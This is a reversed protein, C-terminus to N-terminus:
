CSGNEIISKMAEWDISQDYLQDILSLKEKDTPLTKALSRDIKEVTEFVDMHIRLIPIECQRAQKLIDPHPDQDGTLCLGTFEINSTSIGRRVCDFNQAAAIIVDSRSAPTVILTNQKTKDLIYDLAAAGTMIKTPVSDLHDAGSLVDANLDHALRRLSPRSLITNFDVVGLVKIGRKKLYKSCYEFVQQSKESVAKNFIVGVVPVNEKDFLALNLAIEDLPRGIGGQAVLLTPLGLMSAVHANNMDFVSGVGAHGTGEVIVPGGCSILKEWSDIIAERIQSNDTKGDLYDRTFGAPVTIPSMTKARGQFKFVERMLLVDEDAVEDNIEITRQGVPKMFSLNPYDPKLKKLIALSTTTKGINQGTAAIFLGKPKM